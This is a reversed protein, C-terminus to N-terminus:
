PELRLAAEFREAGYTAEDTALRLARVRPKAADVDLYGVVTAEVVRDDDRHPYFAHKMKLSGDLRARVVGDKVSVVTAKLSLRDIRNTSVDNNETQPYFYTLLKAATEKEVDWSQGAKADKPPLFKGWDDKGLVIWNEAPFERWSGKGAGRAVLHLAVADADCKPCVSQSAPKVVPDGAATKEKEAVEKLLALLKGPKAAEAVHMSDLVRGGADLLYVHVTGTPLKAKLADAWVRDREAKEEAPAPGDKAYDENSVFV